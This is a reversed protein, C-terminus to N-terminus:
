HPPSPIPRATRWLVEQGDNLRAMVRCAVFLFDSLRNLFALTNAGPDEVKGLAVATREARRCATRALHGHAAPLNGGPLIFEKLPPLPANFYDLWQELWTIHGPLLSCRGSISLDGGLDFLLHQIEGLCAALEVPAGQALVVGIHSNLEDLEGFLQIRLTDKDLRTGDALGTSGTDGTRTYIRTLRNGM